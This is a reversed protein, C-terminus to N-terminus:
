AESELILALSRKLGDMAPDGMLRRYHAEIGRKVENAVRLAQISEPTLQILKRRADTADAVRQVLGERTLEDLQQQVAQKTMGAKSALEAQPIGDRDIYQLLNGRAEAFWPYGRDVMETTFRRKWAQTARWLDWGIHDIREPTKGGDAM